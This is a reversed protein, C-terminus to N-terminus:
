PRIRAEESLARQPAEARRPKGFAWAVLVGILYLGLIPLALATQTVMDGSPTIVASVVYAGLFAYKFMRLLFGASV